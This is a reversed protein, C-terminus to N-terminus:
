YGFHNGISYFPKQLTNYKNVGGGETGIWVNHEDDTYIDSIFENNIGYDSNNFPFRFFHNESQPKVFLGGLTGVLLNNNKDRDIATVLNHTLGVNDEERYFDLMIGNLGFRFLGIDRGVWLTKDADEFLAYIASAPPTLKFIPATINRIQNSYFDIRLLGWTCGIWINGGSDELLVNISNPASGDSRSYADIDYSIITDIQTYSSNFVLKEVKGNLTGLWLDGFRDFTITNIWNEAISNKNKDDHLFSIFRNLQHM